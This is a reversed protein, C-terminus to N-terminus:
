SFVPNALEGKYSTRIGIFRWVFFASVVFLIASTSATVSEIQATASRTGGPGPGAFYGASFVALFAFVLFTVVIPMARIREGLLGLSLAPGACSVLVGVVLGVVVSYLADWGPYIAQTFAVPIASAIPITSLLYWIPSEGSDYQSEEISGSDTTRLFRWRYRFISLPTSSLFFAVPMVTFIRGFETSYAFAGRGKVLYFGGWSALM